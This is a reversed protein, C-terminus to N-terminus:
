RADSKVESVNPVRRKRRILWWVGALDLIGVWLRDWMGYNSRGHRRQRDVVDVYAIGYGERKVLAPLFRHLGDFYPLALFVDRRFAKLGCGTDRTGDRLVAGRVANAIRSQFKKFGSAKRGVRQGAVLGVGCGKEIADILKPIFAPDNQGDGDLTVVVPAQAAAVGTRVAASQGCSVTHRIQRLWPRGHMLGLLERESGDSSGDNVYVIEFSRDGLAAAIEAVLPAINGAENRVPVVVSVTPGMPAIADTM